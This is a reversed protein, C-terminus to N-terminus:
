QIPNRGAIAGVPDRHDPVLDACLRAALVVVSARSAFGAAGRAGLEQRAVPDRALSTVVEVFGEETGPCAAFDELAEDFLPGCSSVTAIGHALSLMAGTRRFTLGDVYPSLALDLARVADAADPARLQGLIRVRGSDLTAGVAQSGSGFVLWQVSPEQSLARNAARVWHSLFGNSGPSFVGLAVDESLGLRRRAEDRSLNSVPLTAGVPVVSVSVSSGGWRRVLRAFHPVPTYVQDASRVLAALQLRMPIGTVLWSLRTFPVYPEHVFLAIRIGAARLRRVAWVLAPAVGRRAYLFPVYQVILSTVGLNRAAETLAVPSSVLRSPLGAFLDLDGRHGIVAPPAGQAELARALRLTHDAVGGPVPPLNPCYLGLM